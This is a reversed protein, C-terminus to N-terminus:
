INEFIGKRDYRLFLQSILTGAATNVKQQLFRSTLEFDPLSGIKRGAPLITRVDGPNICDLEVQAESIYILDLRAAKLLIELVSPGTAMMIVNYGYGDGLADIMHAGEVGATGSAVVIVGSHELAAAQVSAAAAQTTFVFIRRGSQLLGAPIEFNLSHSVFALDPSRNEFGARLRWEGLHEFKGGPEFQFLVDQPHRGSSAWSRLYASSSIVVDSQAMLEQFLNWDSTNEIAPPVQLRGKDSKRAIIGHLDTVYSTIVLPRGLAVSLGALKQDLYLGRIPSWKEQMFLQLVEDSDTTQTSALM